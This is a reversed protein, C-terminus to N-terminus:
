RKRQVPRHGKNYSGRRGAVIRKGGSGFAIALVEGVEEVLVIRLSQRVDAPLEELDPENRAPLVVTRVGARHAALLKEKIGGVPLVRGRLTIEGTLAVTPDAARDSLLSVLATLIAVGASPGDKRVGGAPVHVHVDVSKLRSGDVGWDQGRSRVLTLAAEASEKMVDGIQGTLKFGGSGPMQAAEVFILEGGTPTYALGNSVGPIGHGAVVEPEFRAPGLYEALDDARVTRRVRKGRAVKAALGRCVSAVRRELNRVGSERTYHEVIMRLADDEFRVRRGKLGHEDIQRPLLHRKGIELKEATTYGQLEIVEMRDRLAPTVTDMQNATAIFLVQSLDFPVALYHDTFTQNQAPDLVELLAASPDGRFDAGVKDVEDIMLVPNRAGCKRLERVISGPVAGIYTRRHGRIDAEDHVGGLSIRIFQRGLARAISQGLSTKGVGPPGVFCLIPGRGDPKLKRAALHELIRRKVRGLGYHDTELIREARDLDLSDSTQVNWPMQCLWDLYDRIVGHEPSAQPIRELRRLEREAERQVEAPMEAAKIRAAVEALEATGSDTEGLEKRIAQMQQQLYYERQSKDIEARMDTQIKKSLQLVELQNSLTGIIKRLREGVDFTELLEQKQAVGLSLNAALYDALPEADEISDLVTRAEDPVNPSLELVQEATSRATHALAQVELSDAPEDEQAHVLARLFPETAVLREIGVRTVGHVLLSSSGDPMRLLKLVTTTTGVRYIDDLGPEDVEEDRQTAIVLAKDGALVSDVLRKSKERGITLPVVTGPFVVVDRAPLVPLERSEGKPPRPSEIDADGPAPQTAVGGSAPECGKMEEHEQLAHDM